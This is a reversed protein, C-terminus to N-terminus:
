SIADGVYKSVDSGDSPMPGIVVVPEDDPPPADDNEWVTRSARWEPGGHTSLWYRIASINGALAM